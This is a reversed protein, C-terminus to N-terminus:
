SNEKREDRLAGIHLAAIDEQLPANCNEDNAESEDQEMIYKLETITDEKSYHLSCM